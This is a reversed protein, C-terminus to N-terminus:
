AAVDLDRNFARLDVFKQKKAKADRWEQMQRKRESAHAARQFNAAILVFALLLALLGIWGKTENSVDSLIGAENGAAKAAGDAGVLVAREPAVASSENAGDVM